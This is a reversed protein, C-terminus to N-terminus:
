FGIRWFVLRTNEVPIQNSILYFFHVPHIEMWDLGNQDLFYIFDSPVSTLTYMASFYQEEGSKIIDDILAQKIVLNENIVLDEGMYIQLADKTIGVVVRVGGQKHREHYLLQRGYFNKAPTFRSVSKLEVQSAGLESNGNLIRDVCSAFFM